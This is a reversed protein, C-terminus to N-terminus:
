ATQHEAIFQKLADGTLPDIENKLETSFYQNLYQWPTDKYHEKWIDSDFGASTLRSWIGSNKSESKDYVGNMGTIGIHIVFHQQLM